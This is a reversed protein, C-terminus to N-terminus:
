RWSQPAQIGSVGPDRVEKEEIETGPHTATFYPDGPFFPVRPSRDGELGKSGGSIAESKGLPHQLGKETHIVWVRMVTVELVWFGWINRPM